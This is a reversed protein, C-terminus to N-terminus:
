NLNNCQETYQMANKRGNMPSYLHTYLISLLQIGGVGVPQRSKFLHDGM